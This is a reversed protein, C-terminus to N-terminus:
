GDTEIIKSINHLSKKVFFDARQVLTWLASVKSDAARCAPINNKDFLKLLDGESVNEICLRFCVPMEENFGKINNIFKFEFDEKSNELPPPPHSFRRRILIIM